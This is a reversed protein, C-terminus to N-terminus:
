IAYEIKKKTQLLVKEAISRLCSFLHEAKYGLLRVIFGNVPAASIGFVIDESSLYNSINKILENVPINEKLFIFTAQHTYGELQGIANVNVVPPNILLNEKIVLKSNLFIEIVSHYKSFKFVEGNLKRGCTLLEGWILSCDDSLFIKSKSHFSSGEHPVVPHPLFCFLSGENQHVEITQSATNKMTFLRQFSQTELQLSSEEGINIRWQYEDGDLIGPSSSMIVLRLAEGCRDETIDAMKFPQTCYSRKLYTADVRLATEINLESIM